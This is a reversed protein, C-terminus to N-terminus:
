SPLNFLTGNGIRRVVAHCSFWCDFILFAFFLSTIAKDRHSCTKQNVHGLHVFSDICYCQWGFALCAALRYVGPIPFAFAVLDGVFSLLVLLLVALPFCNSQLSALIRLQAVVKRFSSLRRSGGASATSTTDLRASPTCVYFAEQFFPAWSSIQRAGHVLGTAM